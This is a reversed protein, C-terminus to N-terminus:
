NNSPTCKIPTSQPLTLFHLCTRIDGETHASLCPNVNFTLPLLPLQSLSSM